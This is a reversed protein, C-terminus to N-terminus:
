IEDGSKAIHKFLENMIRCANFPSVPFQFHNVSKLVALLGPM